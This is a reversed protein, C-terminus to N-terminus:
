ALRVFLSLHVGCSVSSNKLTFAVADEEKSAAIFDEGAISCKEARSVQLGQTESRGATRMAQM